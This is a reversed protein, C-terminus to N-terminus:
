HVLGQTVSVGAGDSGINGSFNIKAVVCIIIAIVIIILWRFWVPLKGWM